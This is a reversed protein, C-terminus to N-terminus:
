FVLGAYRTRSLWWRSRAASHLHRYHDGAPLPSGDGHQNLRDAGSDTGRHGCHVSLGTINAFSSNDASDQITITVDTGTFSFVQLYAQVGFSARPWPTSVQGPEDSRYRYPGRRNVPGM